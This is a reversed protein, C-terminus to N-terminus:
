DVQTCNQAWELQLWRLAKNPLLSISQNDEYYGAHAGESRIQLLLASISAVSKFKWVGKVLDTGEFLVNFPHFQFHRLILLHKDNFNSCVNIGSDLMKSIFHAM